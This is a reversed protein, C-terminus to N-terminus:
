LIAVTRQAPAGNQLYGLRSATGTLQEYLASVAAPSIRMGPLLIAAYFRVQASIAYLRVRLANNVLLLGAEAIQPNASRRAAEGLRLLLAANAAVGDLYAIAAWLRKRQVVRFERAPLHDRLYQEEAPDTLNRFALLDVPQTRGQLADVDTVPSGRGRAAVYLFFALALISAVV